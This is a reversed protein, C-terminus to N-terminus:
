FVRNVSSHLVIRLTHFAPIVKFHELWLNRVKILMLANYNQMKALTLMFELVHVFTGKMRKKM